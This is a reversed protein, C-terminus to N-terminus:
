VEAEFLNSKLQQLAAPKFMIQVLRCTGINFILRHDLGDNSDHKVRKEPM